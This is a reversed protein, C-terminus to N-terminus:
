CFLENVYATLLLERAKPPLANLVGNIDAMREPLGGGGLGAMALMGNIDEPSLHELDADALGDRVM